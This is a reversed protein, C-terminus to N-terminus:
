KSNKFYKDYFALRLRTTVDTKTQDVELDKELYEGSTLYVIIYLTDTNDRILIYNSNNFDALNIDYNYKIVSTDTINIKFTNSFFMSFEKDLKDINIDKTEGDELVRVTKDSTFIHDSLNFDVATINRLSDMDTIFNNEKLLTSIDKCWGDVSSKNQMFFKNTAKIHYNFLEELTSNYYEQDICSLIDDITDNLYFNVIESKEIGDCGALVKYPVNTPCNEMTVSVGVMEHDPDNSIINYFFDTVSQRCIAYPVNMDMKVDLLRYLMIMIDNNEKGNKDYMIVKNFSVFGYPELPTYGKLLEFGITKKVNSEINIIRVKNNFPFIKILKIIEFTGDELEKFFKYGLYKNIIKSSQM